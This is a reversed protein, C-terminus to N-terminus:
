NASVGACKLYSRLVVSAQRLKKQVQRSEDIGKQTVLQPTKPPDIFEGPLIEGTLNHQAVRCLAQIDDDALEVARLLARVDEVPLQVFKPTVRDVAEAIDRELNTVATAMADHASVPPKKRCWAFMRSLFHLTM